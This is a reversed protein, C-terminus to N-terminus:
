SSCHRSALLRRWVCVVSYRPRTGGGGGGRGTSGVAGGGTPWRCTPWRRRAAALAGTWVGGRAWPSPPATGAPAPGGRVDRAAEAGRQVLRQPRAPDPGAAARGGAGPRRRPAPAPPDARGRLGVAAGGAGPRVAGGGLGRVGPLEAGDAAAADGGAAAGARGRAVAAREPPDGRGRGGPPVALVGGVRVPGAGRARGAAGRQRAGARQPAGPRHRAVGARGPGATPRPRGGGARQRREALVGPPGGPAGPSVVFSRTRPRPCPNAQLPPREPPLSLATVFRNPRVAFDTAPATM